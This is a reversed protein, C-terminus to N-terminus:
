RGAFFQLAAQIAPDTLTSVQDWNSAVTLDPTIGSVEWNQTPDNAPRFTDHAILARSGDTFDYTYLLEVNGGSTEGIIYARGLDKLIGPFIEGFSISGPGVLAVLPVTQSGNIDIGIATFPNEGERNVQYGVTGNVFYGLTETAIDSRGGTNHRSDLILGDLPGSVAFDQLAERVQQGVTADNFTPVLIYGVRKGDSTPLLSHTVPIPGSVARRTIAIERAPNGPTQVTFNGTSGDPGRLIDRRNGQEDLVSVGDVALINDHLQIGAEQAPSGPFVGMVTVLNREPVAITYVGIGVYNRGGSFEEQQQIVEEPTFYTSHDDGLRSVMEKLTQYYQEETLGAAVRDKFEQYVQNWDAGNFDRYLYNENVAQWLEDLVQLQIPSAVSATTPAATPEPTASPAPAQSPTVTPPIETPLATWTATALQSEAPATSTPQGSAQCAALALVLAALFFLRPFPKM